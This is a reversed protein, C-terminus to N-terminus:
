GSGTLSGDDFGTPEDNRTVEVSQRFGVRDPASMTTGWMLGRIVTYDGYRDNVADLAASIRQRERKDYFISIQGSAPSLETAMVAMFTVISRDWVSWFAKWAASFIEYSEFVADHCRTHNNDGGEAYGWSVSIRKTELKKQRLRRGVRECLKMMIGAVESEVDTRRHFVYSHGISKPTQREDPKVQEIDIGAINAWIM